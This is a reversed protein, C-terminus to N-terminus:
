LLGKQIAESKLIRYVTGRIERKIFDEMQGGRDVYECVEQYTYLKVRRDYSILNAITPTPYLCNDIVYGISDIMRQDSFQNARMREIMIAFFGTPLAPFATALKKTCTM